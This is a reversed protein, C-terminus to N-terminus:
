LKAFTCVKAFNPRLTNNLGFIVGRLQHLDAVPGFYSSHSFVSISSSLRPGQEQKEPGDYIKKSAFPEVTSIAQCHLWVGEATVKTVFRCGDALSFAM